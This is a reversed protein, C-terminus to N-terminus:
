RAVQGHEVPARSAPTDLFLRHILELTLLRHIESTYNRDGRVHRRVITEVRGPQLYPRSLTRADLLMEKVYPALRDRYWIRFHTFKHRGLFLREPRLPSMLRDIPALWQPMGYDYAYEAKFSLDHLWGSLGASPRGRHGVLGRDTPIDQLARNGDAILHLCVGADAFVSEPARFLARVLDNDLYPTRMTAQTEELGLLGRHHWPLQKFVAFSLPHARILGAYTDSAVSIHATLEPRFLGAAPAVPKFARVRRLVESGYNGTMRAPAIAAARENAYLDAGHNVAACGDSLFVAREAYEAFRALFDAGVPIVEHHQGSAGAVRRAIAVDHSDRFV